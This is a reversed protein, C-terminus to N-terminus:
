SSLSRALVQLLKLSDIASSITTALNAVAEDNLMDRFAKILYSLEVLTDLVGSEKLQLLTKVMENISPLQDILEALEEIKKNDLREILKELKLEELKEIKEASIEEM